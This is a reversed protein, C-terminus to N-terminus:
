NDVYWCRSFWPCYCAKNCSGQYCRLTGLSLSSFFGYSKSGGIVLTVPIETSPISYQKAGMTMGTLDFWVRQQYNVDDMNTTVHVNFKQDTGDIEYYAYGNTTTLDVGPQDHWAENRRSKGSPIDAFDWKYFQYPKPGAVLNFKHPTLNVITIYAPVAYTANPSNRLRAGPRSTGALDNVNYKPWDGSYPFTDNPDCKDDDSIPPNGVSPVEYLSIHSWKPHSTVALNDEAAIKM